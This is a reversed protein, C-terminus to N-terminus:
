EELQKLLLPLAGSNIAIALDEASERTFSGEIYGEGGSIVSNVTPSSIVEGDLEIHISKGLNDRTATSFLDRGEGSLTFFVVVETASKYGASAQKVHKGELLVKGSEDTFTVKTPKRIFAFIDADGEVGPVVVRIRNEESTVKAEAYGKAALRNRIIDVTNSLEAKFESATLQADSSTEYVMTTGNLVSCGCLVALLLFGALWATIRTRM